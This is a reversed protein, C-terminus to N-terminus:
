NSIAKVLHFRVFRDGTVEITTGDEKFVVLFVSESVVKEFPDDKGVPHTKSIAAVTGIRDDGEPMSVTVEAGMFDAVTWENM